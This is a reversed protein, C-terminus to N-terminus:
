PEMKASLIVPDSYSDPAHFLNLVVPREQAVAQEWQAEELAVGWGEPVLALVATDEAQDTNFCV